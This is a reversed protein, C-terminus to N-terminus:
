GYFIVHHVVGIGFGSLDPVFWPIISHIETSSIRFGPYQPASIRVVM